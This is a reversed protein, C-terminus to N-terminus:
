KEGRKAAQWAAIVEDENSTCPTVKSEFDERVEQELYDRAEQETDCSEAMDEININFSQPRAGGVYGDEAQWRVKMKIM